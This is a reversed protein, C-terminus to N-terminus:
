VFKGRLDSAFLFLRKQFEVFLEICINRSVMRATSDIITEKTADGPDGTAGAAPGDTEAGADLTESAPQDPLPFTDPTDSSHNPEQEEKQAQTNTAVPVDDVEIETGPGCEDSLCLLREVATTLRRLVIELDYNRQELL